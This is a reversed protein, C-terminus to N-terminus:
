NYGGVICISISPRDSRVEDSTRITYVQASSVTLGASDEPSIVYLGGGASGYVTYNANELNNDFNITINGSGNDTVSSVNESDVITNTIANYRLWTTVLTRNDVSATQLEFRTNDSSYVLTVLGDLEGGVLATGDELTVNTVGLGNVDM